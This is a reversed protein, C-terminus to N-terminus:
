LVDNEKHWESKYRDTIGVVITSNLIIITITKNTSSYIIEDIFDNPELSIGSITEIMSGMGSLPIMKSMKHVRSITKYIDLAEIANKREIEKYPIVESLQKIIEDKREQLLFDSSNILGLISNLENYKRKM